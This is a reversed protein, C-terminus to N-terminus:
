GVPQLNHIRDDAEAQACSADTSARSKFVADISARREKLRRADPTPAYNVNSPFSISLSPPFSSCLAAVMGFALFLEVRTAKSGKDARSVLKRVLHELRLSNDM